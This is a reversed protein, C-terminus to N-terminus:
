TSGANTQQHRDWLDPRRTKTITEAEAQRWNRINEHHGSLLVEPVSRGNWDQPRTFQPYELLGNEFSEETQSESKGM